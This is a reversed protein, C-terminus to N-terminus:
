VANWTGWTSGFDTSRRTYQNGNIDTAWQVVYIGSGTDKAWAKVHWWSAGGPSNSPNFGSSYEIIGNSEPPVVSNFDSFTNTQQYISGDVQFLGDGVDSTRGVLVNGSSDIRMAESGAVTAAVTDAAPFYFGTNLDGTTTVSPASASGAQAVTQGASTVRLGEDAAAGAAMTKIVLDFDESAATVDTTVAEIVAGTETNGAATETKFSLGVGIGAAPTGSSQSNLALVSTAAATAATTATFEAHDADATTGATTLSTVDDITGSDIDIGTVPTTGDLLDDITDLNTNLKGGWTDESAGVEPKTLGYTTTTTDAM